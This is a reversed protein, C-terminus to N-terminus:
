SFRTEGLSNNTPKSKKEELSNHKRGRSVKISPAIHELRLHGLVFTAVVLDFQGHYSQQAQIDSGDQSKLEMIQAVGEGLGEEKANKSFVELMAKSVDAGVLLGAGSRKALAISNLGPGCGFDLISVTDPRFTPAAAAAAAPSSTTSSSSVRFLPGLYKEAFALIQQVNQRVGDHAQYKQAAEADFVYDAVHGAQQQQQEQAAAQSGHSHATSEAPKVFDTWM